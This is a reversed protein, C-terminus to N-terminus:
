VTTDTSFRRALDLLAAGIAAVVLNWEGFNGNQLFQGLAIVLPPLVIAGVVKLWHIFDHASLSFSDSGTM